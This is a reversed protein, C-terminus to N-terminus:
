IEGFVIVSFVEQADDTHNITIRAASGGSGQAVMVKPPDRRGTGFTAGHNQIMISKIKEFKRSYFWDGNGTSTVRFVEIEPMSTPEIYDTIGNTGVNYPLGTTANYKLEIPMAM